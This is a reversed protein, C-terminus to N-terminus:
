RENAGGESKRAKQIEDNIDTWKGGNSHRARLYAVLDAIQTDTLLIGFAPMYPGGDRRYETIGGIITRVANAADQLQFASSMSLPVAGSPAAERASEHCKACAGQFIAVTADSANTKVNDIRIKESADKGLGAVYAAIAKRDNASVDALNKIVAAMPGAAAGHGPAHGATLYRVLDAEEWKAADKGALGPAFWGDIKAGRYRASSKEAGVINRPTHCAGCHGLGEVLYKGRNWDDSKSPDDVFRTDDLYLLKWGALFPRIGFPFPLKNQPPTYQVAPVSRFYAYLDSLDADSVKTFHNYPFAPYLHNGERDVGERMARRFAAESWTGIGSGEDSTINTSYITGMPTPM